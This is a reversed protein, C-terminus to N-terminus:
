RTNGLDTRLRFEDEFQIGNYQNWLKLSEGFEKQIVEDAIDLLLKNDDRSVELMTLIKTKKAINVIAHLGIRRSFKAADSLTKSIRPFRSSRAKNVVEESYNEISEKDDEMIYKYMINLNKEANEFLKEYTIIKINSDNKLREIIMKYSLEDRLWQYKRVAEPITIEEIEGKRKSHIYRSVLYNIPNRLILIIKTQPSVKRIVSLATNSYCLSTDIEISKAKENELKYRFLNAYEQTIEGREKLFYGSEKVLESLDINKQKKLNEYIWTTGAKRTGIIITNIKKM